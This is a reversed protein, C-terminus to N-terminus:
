ERIKVTVAREPSCDYAPNGPNPFSNDEEALGPLYCPTLTLTKTTELAHIIEPELIKGNFGEYPRYIASYLTIKEGESTVAEVYWIGEVSDERVRMKGTFLILQAPNFRLQHFAYTKGDIEFTHDLQFTKTQAALEVGDTVFEFELPEDEYYSQIQMIGNADIYEWSIDIRPVRIRVQIPDSPSVYGEPSMLRAEAVDMAVLPKDNGETLLYLWPAGGGGGGDVVEFSDPPYPLLPGIDINAFLRVERLNERPFDGSILFSVALADETVLVKDLMVSIGSKTTKLIRVPKNYPNTSNIISTNYDAEFNQLFTERENEDSAAAAPFAMAAIIFLLAIIGITQQKM